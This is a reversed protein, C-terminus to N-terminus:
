WKRIKSFLYIELIAYAHLLQINGIPRWLFYKLHLIQLMRYDIVTNYDCLLEGRESFLRVLLTSQFEVLGQMGM